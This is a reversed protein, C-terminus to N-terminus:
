RGGFHDAHSWETAIPPLTELINPFYNLWVKYVDGYKRESTHKVKAGKHTLIQEFRVVFNIGLDAKVEKKFESFKAEDKEAVAIEIMVIGRGTKKVVPASPDGYSKKFHTKFETTTTTPPPPPPPPPPTSDDPETDSMSGAATNWDEPIDEKSVPVKRGREEISHHIEINKIGREIFNSASSIGNSEPVPLALTLSLFSFIIFLVSTKM